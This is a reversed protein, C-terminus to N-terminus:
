RHLRGQVVVGARDRQLEAVVKRLGAFSILHPDYHVTVSAYAAMAEVVGRRKGLTAALRLARTNLATDLRRGLEIYAASDGLPEIRPGREARSTSSRPQPM